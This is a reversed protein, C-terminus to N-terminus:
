FYGVQEEHNQESDLHEDFHVRQAKEVVKDTQEIAKVTEHHDTGHEFECQCGHADHLWEADTDESGRTKEPDEFHCLGNLMQRGKEQATCREFLVREPQM